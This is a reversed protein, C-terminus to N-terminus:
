KVLAGLHSLVLLNLAALILGTLVAFAGKKILSYSATWQALERETAELRDEIADSRKSADSMKREGDGIRIALLNIDRLLQRQREDMVDPHTSQRLPEQWQGNPRTSNPPWDPYQM